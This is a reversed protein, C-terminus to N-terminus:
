NSVCSAVLDSRVVSEGGGHLWSRSGFGRGDLLWSRLWLGLDLSEVDVSPVRILWGGLWAHLRVSKVQVLGTRHHQISENADLVLDIWSKSESSRATLTDASRAGHVNVTDVGKSAQTPVIPSLLEIGCVYQQLHLLLVSVSKM